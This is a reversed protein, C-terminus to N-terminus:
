RGAIKYQEYRKGLSLAARCNTDKSPILYTADNGCLIFILDCKTNDFKKSNYGSKNGGKVRLHAVYVGYKSITTTTKVQVRYLVKSDDVILDYDQSDTLPIAVTYGLRAFHAIASGIGVDGQKKPNKHRDV